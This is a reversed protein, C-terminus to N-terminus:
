EINLDMKYQFHEPNYVVQLYDRLHERDEEQNYSRRVLSLLPSGEAVQLEHAAEANAAVATITQTVHTLELGNDRFYTIRPTNEFVQKSRPPKVGATWSVYYGFERSERERVRVLYLATEGPELELEDRIARPPQMMKCELVRASSNRAMSEIEELMGTLPAKVPKPSYRYIIHTGKGRRREVLSEDALEDMARKATIRSVAFTKALEEETPMRQGLALTGNLILTKLLSYLQFYLPTPSERNLNKMDRHSFITSANDM